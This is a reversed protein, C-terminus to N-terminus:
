AEARDPSGIGYMLVLMVGCAIAWALLCKGWERWEYRVREAGYKPPKWPPPGGAFRHAFGQDAWRVMAHGFAISFGIYAAALGHTFKAEALRRMRLLYRAVLGAGLIVWLGVECPAIVPLVM